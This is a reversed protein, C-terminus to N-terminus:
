VPRIGLSIQTKAPGVTMKNTNDNPPEDHRTLFTHIAYVTGKINCDIVNRIFIFAVSTVDIGLSRVFHFRHSVSDILTTTPCINSVEIFHKHKM